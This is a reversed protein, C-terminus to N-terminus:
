QLQAEAMLLPDFRYRLMGYGHLQRSLEVPSLEGVMEPAFVINLVSRRQISQTMGAAIDDILEAPVRHSRLPKAAQGLFGDPSLSGLRHWLHFDLAMLDGTTQPSLNQLEWNCPNIMQRTALLPAFVLDRAIAHGFNSLIEATTMVGSLFDAAMDIGIIIAPVIASAATGFLAGAILGGLFGGVACVLTVPGTPACVLASVAATGVASGLIGAGWSMGEQAIVLPLEPSDWAESIRRGTQYAGYFMLVTGGVRMCGIARAAGPTVGLRTLGVRGGALEPSRMFETMRRARGAEYVDLQGGARRGTSVDIGEVTPHLGLVMELERLPVTICNRTCLLARAEGRPGYVREYMLRETSGPAATPRPPSYRYEGSYSLSRLHGAFERAAVPDTERFIVSQDGLLTFFQDDHIRGPVGILLQETFWRGAGGPLYEGLHTLLNARFGRVTLAGEVRAFLSLHGGSWLIGVANPPVLGIPTPITTTASAAAAGLDPGVSLRSLDTGLRDRGVFRGEPLNTAPLGMLRQFDATTMTTAQVAPAAPTALGRAELIRPLAERVIDHPDECIQRRIITSSSASPERAEGSCQGGSGYSLCCSDTSTGAAAFTRAAAESSSVPETVRYRGLTTGPSDMGSRHQIVHALEHALLRSDASGAPVGDRLVVDEGVTYAKAGLLASSLAAYPGEHLRVSGLGQGFTAEALSRPATPPARGPSRVAKDVLGVLNGSDQAPPRRAGARAHAM